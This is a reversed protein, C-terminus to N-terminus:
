NNKTIHMIIIIKGISNDNLQGITYQQSLLRRQYQRQAENAQIIDM